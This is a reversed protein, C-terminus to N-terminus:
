EEKQHARFRGSKNFRGELRAVKAEVQKKTDQKAKSLSQRLSDLDPHNPGLTKENIDLVQQYLLAAEVHKGQRECLMALNNAAVAVDSHDPGLVSEWIQLLRKCLPEAKDYKLQRWYVEALSELTMSLRPDDFRFDKAEDLAALWLAQALFYNERDSAKVAAARYNEWDSGFKARSEHVLSEMKMAEEPRNTKRLLRSYWQAVDAVSSHLQGLEAQRISMARQLYPEAEEYKAMFYLLRGLNKLDTSVSLHNPGAISQRIELAEKLLPEMKELMEQENYIASLKVLADALALNPKGEKRLAVIEKAAKDIPLEPASGAEEKPQRLAQNQPSFTPIHDSSVTLKEISDAEDSSNLGARARALDATVAETDAHVVAQQTYILLARTLLDEARDFVSQDLLSKGLKHAAAAVQISTAGHMSEQMKLMRELAANTGYGTAM